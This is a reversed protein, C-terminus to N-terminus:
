YDDDSSKFEFIYGYSEELPAMELFLENMVRRSSKRASKHDGIMAQLKRSSKSVLKHIHRM